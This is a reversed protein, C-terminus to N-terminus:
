NKRRSTKPGVVEIWISNTEVEGIWAKYPLRDLEGLYSALPNNMGDNLFGSSTYTGRVMYKGPTNLHPFSTPDMALDGVYYHGPPLAIWYKSFEQVLPPRRPDNLRYRGYDGASKEKRDEIRSGNYFLRIDLRSLANEPGDFNTAVFVSETGANYVEVRLTLTGGPQIRTSRGRIKVILRQVGNNGTGQSAVSIIGLLVTLLSLGWIVRWSGSGREWEGVNTQSSRIIQAM